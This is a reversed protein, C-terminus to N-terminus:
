LFVAFGYAKPMPGGALGLAARGAACPYGAPLPHGAQKWGGGPPAGLPAPRGARSTPSAAQPSALVLPSTEEKSAMPVPVTALRRSFAVWIRLGARSARFGTSSVTAAVGTPSRRLAVSAGALVATVVRLPRRPLRSPWPLTTRGVRSGECVTFSTTFRRSSESRRRILMPLAMALFVPVAALKVESDSAWPPVISTSGAKRPRPRGGSRLIVVPSDPAETVYSRSLAAPTPEALFVSTRM